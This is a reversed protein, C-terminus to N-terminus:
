IRIWVEEKFELETLKKNALIKLDVVDKEKLLVGIKRLLVM